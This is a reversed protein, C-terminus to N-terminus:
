LIPTCESNKSLLQRKLYVGIKDAQKDVYDVICAKRLVVCFFFLDPIRHIM